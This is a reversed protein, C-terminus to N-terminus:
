HSSRSKAKTKEERVRFLYLAVGAFLLTSAGIAEVFSGRAVSGAVLVAGAVAIALSFGKRATKPNSAPM